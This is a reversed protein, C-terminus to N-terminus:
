KRCCNNLWCASKPQGVPKNTSRDSCLWVPAERNWGSDVGKLFHDLFRKQVAMGQDLYVLEEHRGPHAELWKQTSAAQTFAEFNGRPHLGYGAWNVARLFPLTVRSWDPSRDRYFQNDFPHELINQLPDNRNKTLEEDTLKEQGTALQGLWPDVPGNPNGHQVL